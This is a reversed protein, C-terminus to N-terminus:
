DLAFSGTKFSNTPRYVSYTVGGSLNRVGKLEFGMPSPFPDFLRKGQGLAVPITFFRYEDILNHAILTHALGRSGHIQLEGEHQNKIAEVDNPVTELHHSNHWDFSNRTRSAVYKPLTNLKGAVPDTPDTVKPWHASFIDYTGRGLLFASARSFIDLMITGMEPGFHPVVWGGHEFNGSRDEDPGGPAQVVGDLSLFATLTLRAM